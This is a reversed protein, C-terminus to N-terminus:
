GDLRALHSLDLDPVQYKKIAKVLPPLPYLEGGYGRGESAKGAHGTLADHVEETIGCYRAWQKFVHRFSHFVKKRKESAAGLLKRTSRNWRKGFASSHRGYKDLPLEPFLWVQNAERQRIVFKILGIRELEPHIPVQRRSSETKLSQGEGGQVFIYWGLAKDEQLDSVRLQCVEEIRMGSFVAILPAWFDANEADPHPREGLAHCGSTFILRMEDVSFPLRAKPANKKKKKVTIMHTPDVTLLEDVVAKRFLTRLTSIRKGVTKPNLKLEDLHKRYANVHSKRVQVAQTVKFQQALFGEFELAIASYEDVTKPTREGDSKWNELLSEVTIAPLGVEDMLTQGLPAIKEVDVPRGSDRKELAEGESILAELFRILLMRYGRPEGSIHFGLRQLFEDLRKRVPEVDGEALMRRLNAVDPRRTEASISVYVQRDIAPSARWEADENLGTRVYTRCVKTIFDEDITRVEFVRGSERANIFIQHEWPLPGVVDLPVRGADFSKAHDFERNWELSKELALNRAERMSDTKLSVKIERGYRVHLPGPVRQRYYYVGGRKFLRAQKKVAKM